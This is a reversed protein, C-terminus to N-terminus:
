NEASTVPSLYWPHTYQAIAKELRVGVVKVQGKCKFLRAIEQLVTCNDQSSSCDNKDFCYVPTNGVM